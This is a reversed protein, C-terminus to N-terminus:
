VHDQNPEGDINSVHVNKFVEVKLSLYETKEFFNTM